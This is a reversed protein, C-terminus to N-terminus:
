QPMSWLMIFTKGIVVMIAIYAIASIIWVVKDIRNKTDLSELFGLTIFAKSLSTGIHLFVCGFFLSQIILAIILSFVGGVHSNMIAFANLHGLLFVLIGIASARQLITGRILGSYKRLETGENSFMMISMGTIIHCILAGLILLGLVKTVVPSYIFQIYAYMEFGSHILLLVITLLGLVANSKKLKM